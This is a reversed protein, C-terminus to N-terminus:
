IKSLELYLILNKGLRDVRLDSNYRTLAM